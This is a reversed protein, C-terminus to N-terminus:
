TIFPYAQRPIYWQYVIMSQHLVSLYIGRLTIFFFVVCDFNLIFFDILDKQRKVGVCGAFQIFTECKM